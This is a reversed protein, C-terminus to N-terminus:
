RGRDHDDGAAGYSSAVGLEGSAAPRVGRPIPVTPTEAVRRPAPSAEDDPAGPEPADPAGYRVVRRIRWFLFVGVILALVVTVLIATRSPPSSTDPTSRAGAASGTPEAPGAQGALAVAQAPDILGFGYQPDPAEGSAMPSASRLIDNVIQAAPADKDAGRLLAAEGAVFAVAYQVGSGSFTGTGLIGVSSVGVGPAVVDVDGAAYTAALEGDVGMGGVQIVEAPWTGAEGTSAGMVVVVDHSAAKRIAAGVPEQAPDVYSGLAIIRAGASVAVEIAAAQDAVTAKPENTAIRVPLITAEPAMGVIPSGGGEDAAIIGAMATGTGLCDVDGRGSGTVIDPGSAVRKQLAPVSGDVGSDIVAVLVGGGRGRDWAQQPALRLHAWDSASGPVPVGACSGPKASPAASASATPTASAGATPGATGLPDAPMKTPAGAGREDRSEPKTPKAPAAKKTSKTPLVGYQVGDGVADWPLVLFWGVRLTAPDTLSGGDPQTRGVNLDFIDASRGASGLFRVAIDTLSEPKGSATAGVEYYKVNVPTPAAARAAPALGAALVVAGLLAAVKRVWGTAPM